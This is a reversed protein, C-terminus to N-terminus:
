SCALTSREAEAATVAPDNPFRVAVEALTICAQDVQGLRGLAAGLEFLAEPAITGSTDGTFAALYARAAERTDGLGDLAKGQGFDVKATLPSGPYAEKFRAFKDAAAQYNQGELDGMAAKYDAEEGIALEGAGEIVADGDAPVPTQGLGVAAEGAIEGGLTTTEGLTSLDGGELEVLRFELDGIRNTGDEVIRQVRYQLEETKSTLRQLEAEIATVRDLVSTGALSASPAGTTSLERNLRQVEVHLVTLEQRIDALTQEREQTVGPVVSVAILATALFFQRLGKM